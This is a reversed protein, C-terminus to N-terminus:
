GLGQHSLVFSSLSKTEKRNHETEAEHQEMCNLPAKKTEKDQRMKKKKKEQGQESSSTWEGM